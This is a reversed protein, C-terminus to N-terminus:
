RISDRSKFGIKFRFFCYLRLLSEFPKQGQSKFDSRVPPSEFRQSTVAFRSELCRLGGNNSILPPSPKCSKLRGKHCSFKEHPQCEKKKWTDSVGTQECSQKNAIKPSNTRMKLLTHAIRNSTRKFVNLVFGDSGQKPLPTLPYWFQSCITLPCWYQSCVIQSCM